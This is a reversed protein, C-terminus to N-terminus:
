RGPVPVRLHRDDARRCRGALIRHLADVLPLHHGTYYGREFRTGADGPYTGYLTTM